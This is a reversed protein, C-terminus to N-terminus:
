NLNKIAWSLFEEKDTKSLTEFQAKVNNLNVATKSTSVESESPLSESPIAAVTGFNRLSAPENSKNFREVEAVTDSYFKLGANIKGKKLSNVEKGDQLVSFTPKDNFTSGQALTRLKPVDINLEVDAADFTAVLPVSTYKTGKNGGDSVVKTIRFVLQNVGNNLTVSDKHDFGLSSFGVDKENVTLLQVDIPIDVTVSAYAMTPALILGALLTKVRKMM